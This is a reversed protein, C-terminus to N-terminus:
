KKQKERVIRKKKLPIELDIQLSFIAGSKELFIYRGQSKVTKKKRRKVHVDTKKQTLIKAGFRV